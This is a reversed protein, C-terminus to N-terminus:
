QWTVKSFHLLCRSQYWNYMNHRAFNINQKFRHQNDLWLKQVRSSDTLLEYNLDIASCIRDLPDQIQDYEHNIIDDFMDFGMQSLFKVLGVSGIMIPFNCGYVSNLFKESVGMYVTNCATESVIEIFCNYYIHRLNQDFNTANDTFNTYINDVNKLSVSLDLTKSKKYGKMLKPKIAIEQQETLPWSVRQLWSDCKITDGFSIIGYKELNSGLLYSVLNIRSQRPARNLAVFTKKSDFNKNIAPDLQQYEAQQNTMGSVFPVTQIRSHQLELEGREGSLVFIFNYTPNKEVWDFYIRSVTRPGGIWHEYEDIGVMDYIFVVVNKKNPNLVTASPIPNYFVQYKVSPPIIKLCSQALDSNFKTLKM